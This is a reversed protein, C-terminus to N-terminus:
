KFTLGRGHKTKELCMLGVVANM